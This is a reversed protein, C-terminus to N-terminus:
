FLVLMSDIVGLVGYRFVVVSVPPGCVKDLLYDAAEVQPLDVVIGGRLCSLSLSCCEVGIVVFVVAFQYSINYSV